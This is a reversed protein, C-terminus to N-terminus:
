DIEVQYVDDILIYHYHYKECMRQYYANEDISSDIRCWSDEIRQEVVNLMVIKNKFRM